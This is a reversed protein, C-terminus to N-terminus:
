ADGKFTSGRIGAYELKDSLSLWTQAWLRALRASDPEGAAGRWIVRVPRQM